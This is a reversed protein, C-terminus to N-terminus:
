DDESLNIKVNKKKFLLPINYKLYYLQRNEFDLLNRVVSQKEKKGGGM